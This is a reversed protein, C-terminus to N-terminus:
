HRKSVTAWAIDNDAYVAHRAFAHSGLLHWQHWGGGGGGEGGGMHAGNVNRWTISSNLFTVSTTQTRSRTRAGGAVSYCVRLTQRANANRLYLDLSSV